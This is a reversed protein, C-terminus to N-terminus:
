RECAASLQIADAVARTVKNPSFGVKSNLRMTAATEIL